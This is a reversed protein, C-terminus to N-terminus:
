PDWRYGTGWATKLHLPAAPDPEIKTRLRRVHVTVTTAEAYWEYNWVRQMLQDRTFVQNPREMLFLLLDFERPTLDVPQGDLEVTRGAPDLAVLGHRIPAGGASPQGDYSRRLVAKVRVVLERPSFPKAMYDDAGMEFGAIRDMEDGRATLMIIPAKSTERIRRCVELGGVGPLM